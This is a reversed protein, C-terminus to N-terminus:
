RRSKKRGRPRRDRDRGRGRQRDPSSSRSDTDSRERKRHSGPRYDLREEKDLWRHRYWCNPGHPCGRKRNDKQADAWEFCLQRRDSNGGSGRNTGRNGRSSSTYRNAM